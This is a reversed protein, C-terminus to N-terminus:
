KGNPWILNGGPDFVHQGDIRFGAEKLDASCLALARRLYACRPRRRFFNVQAFRRRLEPEISILKSQLDPNCLLSARTTL